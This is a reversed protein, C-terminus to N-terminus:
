LLSANCWAIDTQRRRAAAEPPNESLLNQRFRQATPPSNMDENDEREAATEGHATAAPHINWFDASHEMQEQVEATFLGPSKGLYLIWTNSFGWVCACLCLCFKAGDSRM